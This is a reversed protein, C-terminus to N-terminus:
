QEDASCSSSRWVVQSKKMLRKHVNIQGRSKRRRRYIVELNSLEMDKSPDIRRFMLQNGIDGLRVNSGALICHSNFVKAVDEDTLLWRGKAKGNKVNWEFRQRLYHNVGSPGKEYAKESRRRDPERRKWVHGKPARSALRNERAVARKLRSVIFRETIKSLSIKNLAQDQVLLRFSTSSQPETLILHIKDLLHQLALREIENTEQM